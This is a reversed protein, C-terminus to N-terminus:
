KNYTSIARRVGVRRAPEWNRLESNNRWVRYSKLDEIRFEEVGHEMGWEHTKKVIM